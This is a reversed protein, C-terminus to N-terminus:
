RQDHLSELRPAFGSFLTLRALGREPIHSMVNLLEEEAKLVIGSHIFPPKGGQLPCVQGEEILVGWGSRLREMSPELSVGTEERIDHFQTKILTMIISFLQTGEALFFGRPCM